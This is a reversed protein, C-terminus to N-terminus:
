YGGAAAREDLREGALNTGDQRVYLRASSRYMPTVQRVYAYAGALCAATVLLILWWGRLVVHLLHVGEGSGPQRQPQLNHRVVAHPSDIIAIPAAHGPVPHAPAAPLQAGASAASNGNDSQQQMDLRM